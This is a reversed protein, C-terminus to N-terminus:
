RNAIRLGDVLPKLVRDAHDGPRGVLAQWADIEETPYYSWRYNAPLSVNEVRFAGDIRAYSFMSWIWVREIQTLAAVRAVVDTLWAATGPRIRTSGDGSLVLERVAPYREVYSLPSVDRPKTYHFGMRWVTPAPAALTWEPQLGLWSEVAAFWPADLPPRADLGSADVERLTSLDPGQRDLRELRGATAFGRSWVITPLYLARPAWATGHDRVLRNCARQIDWTPAALQKAILEGRPDGRELLADALVSRPGDDRPNAYVAAFLAEILPDAPDESM